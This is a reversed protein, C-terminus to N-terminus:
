HLISILNLNTKIFTGTTANPLAFNIYCMEYVFKMPLEFHKVFLFHFYNLSIHIILFLLKVAPMIALLVSGM